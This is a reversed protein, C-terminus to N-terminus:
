EWWLKTYGLVSFNQPDVYVYLQPNEEINTRSLFSIMIMDSDPLFSLDTRIAVTGDNHTIRKLDFGEGATLYTVTTDVGYVRTIRFFAKTTDNVLASDVAKKIVDATLYEKNSSARITVASYSFKSFPSNASPYSGGDLPESYPKFGLMQM